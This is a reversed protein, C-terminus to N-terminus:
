RGKTKLYYRRNAAKKAARGEPTANWLRKRQRDKAKQRETSMLSGKM